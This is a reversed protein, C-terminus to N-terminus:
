GVAETVFHTLGAQRMVSEIEDEERRRDWRLEAGAVRAAAEVRVREPGPPAGLDTRRFVLDALKVGMEARIAHLVRGEASMGAQEIGALDRAAPLSVEATRCPPVARGLAKFVRNVAREAVRRATTYKVGEASILNRTGGAHGHDIIRAREALADARGPEQGAKLPLWGWQCRVVDAATLKAAPCADNFEQLLTRVGSAVAAPVGHEQSLSYWTGLMTADGHPALFLYRHGGGVPDARPSTRTRVGVAMDALRRGIVVNLGLAQQPIGLMTSTRRHEAVLSETWPGATVLVSRAEIDFETGTLRDTVSAGRVVGESVRFRNVRAYNAAVAGQDAAALIFSLTLREPHLLRADHWVAGGTLGDAAVAPFHQLCERRSVIRGSPILRERDLYRNRDRSALDNLALAVGMAARSRGYLPVLVPLPQVLGPAIRLLTSRERISERMRAFNGHALYRLGGHVIRLSNASTAAGFDDQDVVAVSLGRLAADWAACAGHIGAGVVLLDFVSRSLAPPDRRM